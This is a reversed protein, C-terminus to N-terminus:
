PTDIFHNDQRHEFDAPVAIDFISAEITKNLVMQKIELELMTKTKQDFLRTKRAYRINNHNKFNSFSVELNQKSLVTKHPLNSEPHFDLLQIAMGQENLLAIRNGGYSEARNFNSLLPFGRGITWLHTTDLRVPLLDSTESRGIDGVYYLKEPFSLIHIRNGDIMIHFLPRGWFHTIEIKVRFPKRTGVILSSAEFKSGNGQFTITGSSFFSHVAHEQTKLDLIIDAIEQDTYPPHHPDKKVEFPACSQFIAFILLIPPLIFQHIRTKDM